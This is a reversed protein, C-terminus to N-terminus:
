RKPPESLNRQVRADWARNRRDLEDALVRLHWASLAGHPSGDPWFHVYGDDFTVFEERATSISVVRKREEEAQPSSGRSLKYINRAIQVAVDAECFQGDMFDARSQPISRRDLRKRIKDAERKRLILMLLIERVAEM